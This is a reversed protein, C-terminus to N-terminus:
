PTCQVDGRRQPHTTPYRRQEAQHQHRPRHEVAEVREVEGCRGRDTLMARQGKPMSRRPTAPITAETASRTMLMVSTPSAPGDLVGFPARREDPLDAKRRRQLVDARHDHQSPLQRHLQGAGAM